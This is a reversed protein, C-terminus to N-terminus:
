NILEVGEIGNFGSDLSYLQSINNEKMSVIINADTFSLKSYKEMIKKTALFSTRDNFLIKIRNSKTFLKLTDLAIKHNIKRNLFNVVELIIYDTVFVMKEKKLIQPLLSSAEINWEDRKNKFAIWVVSDIIIM